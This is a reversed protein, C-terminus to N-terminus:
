RRQELADLLLSAKDALGHAKLLDRKKLAQESQALFLRADDLARQDAPASYRDKQLGDIRQHIRTQQTRVEDETASSRAPELEPARAPDIAKVDAPATAEGAPRTQTRGPQEHKLVPANQATATAPPAPTTTPAAPAPPPQEITLTELEPGQAKDPAPKASPPPPEVYVVRPSPQRKPCGGILLAM